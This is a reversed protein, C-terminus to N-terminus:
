SSERTLQIVRDALSVLAGVQKSVNLVDSGAGMEAINRAYRRGALAAELHFPRSLQAAMTLKARRVPDPEAEALRMLPGVVEADVTRVLDRWTEQQADSHFPGDELEVSLSHFRELATHLNEVSNQAPRDLGVEQLSHSELSLSEEFAEILGTLHGHRVFYSM